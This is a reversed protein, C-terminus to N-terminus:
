IESVDLVVVEPRRAPRLGSPRAALRGALRAALIRPIDDERSYGPVLTVEDERVRGDGFATYTVRYTTRDPPPAHGPRPTASM